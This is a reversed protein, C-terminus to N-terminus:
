AKVYNAIFYDLLESFPLQPAEIRFLGVRVDYEDKSIYYMFVDSVTFIQINELKNKFNNGKFNSYKNQLESAEQKTM